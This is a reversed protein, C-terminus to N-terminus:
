ENFVKIRQIFEKPFYSRNNHILDSLSGDLIYTIGWDDENRVIRGTGQLINLVAKWRYWAPNINLKTKVFRDGLSMYPVKAFIQFRSFDDKMDLGELLSPGMLIRDKSVKMMDLVKRKEETGKYVFVRKLNEPTLNEKIKTTLDYSASHILGNEGKHNSIIENIKQFLWEKNQEIHKYSMRRKPYYNIPSKDFNFSNEVKIYKAGKLNINKMYERPDSITASMFVVFGTYQHFFKDMMFNEELCNFIIEDNNPNKIINRTSTKQIIINYDEIKCHFDKVWDSLFLAKRWSKPPSENKYEKDVKDKLKKVSILISELSLEISMLKKYLIEQNESKKIELINRKINNVDISHDKIKRNKFFDSLKELDKVTNETFRPSYHNQVIDLVKHAEDCITFDRAPFLSEEGVHNQMILWYNYNLIATDSMSAHDRATFYPCQKYCWMSKPNKNRIKCTGLSHKEGNEICKYNDIGKVSGWGLMMRKVDDEYQDQLSIESALIYGEKGIENLIFSSAMAILSKGSGVPADLIVAKHKGTLYTNIIEYVAEKQGKRWKFDSPLYTEEFEKMFEEITSNIEEKSKPKLIEIGM